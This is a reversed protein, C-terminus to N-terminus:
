IGQQEALQALRALLEEKEALLRITEVEHVALQQKTAECETLVRQMEREMESQLAALLQQNAVENDAHLQEMEAFKEADKAAILQQKEAEKEALMRDKEALQKEFGSANGRIPKKALIGECCFGYVLLLPPPFLLMFMAGDSYRLLEQLSNDQEANFGASRFASEASNLIALLALCVSAVLQLRNVHQLRYPRVLLQLIVACFSVLMVGMSTFIESSALSQSMAMLLRQLALVATWHWYESLFPETAHQRVALFVGTRPLYVKTAMLPFHRFCLWMLVVLLPSLMLVVLIIWIPWQWILDCPTAGAYLLVPAGNVNVCNLLRFTGEVFSTFSFLVLCAVANSLYQYKIDAGNAAEENENIAEQDHYHDILAEQATSDQDQMSGLGLPVSVRTNVRRTCFGSVLVMMVVVPLLLLLILPEFLRWLLRDIMRMGKVVCLSGQGSVLQQMKTFDGATTTAAMVMTQYGHPVVVTALQFFYIVVAVAGSSQISPQLIKPLAALLPPYRAQQLAYLDYAIWYFMQMTVYAALKGGDGCEKDRVCGSGDIAQSYHLNCGGCMPVMSDRQGQCARESGLACGSRNDCCYGRPCPLLLVEGSRNSGWFGAKARIQAGGDTCDAGYPCLHCTIDHSPSSGWKSGRDLSFLGGSCPSCSIEGTTMLMPPRMPMNTCDYTFLPSLGKYQLQICTPNIYQIASGNNNVSVQTCDIQWTEFQSTFVSMNHLVQEGPACRLQAGPSYILRGGSRIAVGAASQRAAFSIRVNQLEIGAGTASYIASGRDMAQNDDIETGGKAILSATGQALFIAGGSSSAFNRLISCNDVVIKYNSVYIAGGFGFGGAHMSHKKSFFHRTQRQQSVGCNDGLKARKSSMSNVQNDVRNTHLETSEIRFTSGDKWQRWAEGGESTTNPSCDFPSQYWGAVPKAIMRLNLAQNDNAQRVCIGGGYTSAVNGILTSRAVILSVGSFISVHLFGGGRGIEAMAKNNRFICQEILTTVDFNIGDYELSIGAGLSEAGGGEATLYNDLFSSGRLITKVHSADYEYDFFIGGGIAYGGDDNTTIYNGTFSSNEVVSEVFTAEGVFVVHLGAGEGYGCGGNGTLRNDTFTCGIFMSKVRTADGVFGLLAGAGKATATNDGNTSVISNDLFQCKSVLATSNVADGKVYIQLGGGQGHYTTVLHNDRFLCQDVITTVNQINATYYVYLGGALVEFNGFQGDTFNCRQFNNTLDVANGTYVVLVSGGRIIGSSSGISYEFSDEEFSVAMPLIFVYRNGDTLQQRGDIVINSNLLLLAAAAGGVGTVCNIFRSQRVISRRSTKRLQMLQWQEMPSTEMAVKVAPALALIGGGAGNVASCNKFSTNDVLLLVLDKVCVCGGGEYDVYSEGAQVLSVTNKFMCNQLQLSIGEAYVAGGSSSSVGNAFQIGIISLSRNNAAYKNEDSVWATAYSYNLAKGKGQCDITVDTDKEISVIKM